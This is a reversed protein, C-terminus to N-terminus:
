KPPCQKGHLPCVTLEDDEHKFSLIGLQDKLGIDVERKMEYGCPFKIENYIKM